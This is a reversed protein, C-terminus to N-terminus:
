SPLAASSPGPTLRRLSARRQGPVPSPMASRTASAPAGSLSVGSLSVGSLSVGSPSVVSPSVGSPSVRSAM